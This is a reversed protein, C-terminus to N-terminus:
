QQYVFLHLHWATLTQKKIEFIKYVKILILFFIM